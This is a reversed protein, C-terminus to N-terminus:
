LSIALYERLAPCSTARVIRFRFFPVSLLPLAPRPPLTLLRFCAIAIPSESARFFPFFTGAFFDEALFRAPFRDVFFLAYPDAGEGFLGAFLNEFPVFRKGGSVNLQM